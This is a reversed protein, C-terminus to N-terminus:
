RHYTEGNIIKFARYVQELLVLRAVQHPFTLRSLSFRYHAKKILEPDLGLSGGIVFSIHSNGSVFFSRLKAAFEESDPMEGKLDLVVLLTGDKVKRLVRQAEKKKIQLEQVESLHEPVQEDEVEIIELDCFRSLRKGYEAIGDKLYKGKLKGVAIVTIKM